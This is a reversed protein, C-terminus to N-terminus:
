LCRMLMENLIEQLCHLKSNRKFICEKKSKEFQKKDKVLCELELSNM